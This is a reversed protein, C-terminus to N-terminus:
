EVKKKLLTIASGRLNVSAGSLSLQREDALGQDVLPVGLHQGMLQRVNAAYVHWDALEDGSPHYPPLVTIELHNVFQALLRFVHFLTNGEGWGPNCHRFRYRLLVPCVPRGVTFAGRRFNLLCPKAKTTAEPALALLPFRRDVAREAIAKVADGRLVHKNARDSSGTREVFFLQLAQAFLGICPINAVGAKSVGSPTFFTAIAAADIYSPHNFVIIARCAEAAQINHWGHVPIHYFGAVLLLFRGWLQIWRRVLFQRFSLMPSQPQHGVLLLWLGAWAFPAACALLLLKFAVIPAMILLKAGEYM